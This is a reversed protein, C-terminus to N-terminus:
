EFDADMMYGSFRRINLVKQNEFILYQGRIGKLIGEVREEKDFNCQVPKQPWELVPYDIRFIESESNLVYRRLEFPLLQIAKEKEILLDFDPLEANTLMKRWNTKDGFHQMLLTEIVGAVHRNPVQCIKLAQTAGQDMWRVPVQSLRTVGVKLGGSVALYVVHPKLCHEESWKMDRSVGLHAKCRDPHLVCDDAEPATMFCQYCFGQGFSKKTEKGCNICNIKNRFTFGVYKGLWNNMAVSGEEFQLTYVVKHNKLDSKMKKLNGHYGTM